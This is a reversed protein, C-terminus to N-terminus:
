IINLADFIIKQQEKQHIYLFGTAPSASKSRGVYSIKQNKFMIKKFYSKVYNWSGQNKPEEQCWIIDDIKDLSKFIKIIKKNPFPYLNEIRVILINNKKNKIQNILLEYYIKGSCFIIKNIKEKKIQNTDYIVTKFNGNKLNELSSFTLPNRLLSKPSIIILPKKNKNYAHEILLHYMQGSTTPISIRMNKQACLQLFRELRASSHEPGQGEYGHPLLLVLGSQQNWKQESSSLFQDIVIQAGNSFDGFQAEWVVLMKQNTSSYGYEFALAAEESLVSDWIYFKSQKFKSFSKLPIYTEGNKQDHIIAHRHFFTGRSVDEGTIRCSIGQNLLTAYALLESAGWDFKKKGNAMDLRDNYVNKIKKHLNITNPISFINIAIDKIKESFFNKKHNLYNIDKKIKIPFFINKKPKIHIYKEYEIDLKKRYQSSLLEIEDLQIIKEQILKNEYIEKVTKHNKIKQYMIPQTVSPDDIENHGFRRYCVLDIFIDKKFIKRYKIALKSIFIAAEPDDANIHFIPSQIMKAIDSCYQTSRLDKRNSTTFGIQNNIIIHISGGVSYGRTQSMNLTEQVVGQGTISADGHIIIPVITNSNFLKKKDLYARSSGLVVPSIIELHSPNFKLEILIENIKKLKSKFGMHYKVDGSYSRELNKSSFESFINRIKKGIINALVNIRGRHAMGLFIKLVHLKSSQLIMESLMPILTESGELSFRKVGPFKINLYKELSEASILYKLIEKKKHTDFLFSKDISEVNKQIWNREEVNEIHMYEIGISNSYIKKLDIYLNKLSSYEKSNNLYYFNKNQVFQNINKKYYFYKMDESFETRSNKLPDLKAYRHGYRRFSDILKFIEISFSNIEKNEFENKKLFNKNFVNDKNKTKKFFQLFIKKWNEDILSPNNLFKKYLNEVYFQNSNIMNIFDDWSKILENNM